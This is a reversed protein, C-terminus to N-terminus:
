CIGNFNLQDIVMWLNSPKVIDCDMTSKPGDSVNAPTASTAKDLTLLNDSKINSGVDNSRKCANLFVTLKSCLLASSFLNSPNSLSAM